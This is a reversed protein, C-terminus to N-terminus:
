PHFSVVLRAHEPVLRDSTALGREPRADSGIGRETLGQEGAPPLHQDAPHPGV